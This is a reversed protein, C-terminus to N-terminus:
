SSRKGQNRKNMGHQLGDVPADIFGTLARPGAMAAFLKLAMQTLKVAGIRSAVLRCRGLDYSQLELVDGKFMSSVQDLMAIKKGKGESEQDGFLSKKGEESWGLVSDKFSAGASPFIVLHDAAEKAASALLLSM